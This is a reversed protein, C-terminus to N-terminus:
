FHWGLEVFMRQNNRITDWIQDYTLVAYLQRSLRCNVSGGLTRTLQNGQQGKITYAYHDYHASVAIMQAVWRDLDIVIDSGQTYLGTITSYQGGLNFESGLVDSVRLQTMLTRASSTTGSAVRWNGQAGVMINFPLRVQFSTRWGEKLTKDLLTDSLAKMSEFLYITRAADFGGNLTLWDTPMYTLTAFTNTMRFTKQIIGNEIKKFDFESSSYFFLETGMRVSSQAYLFARDLKGKYRQQGYALTIDSTRFASTGGWGYNAFASFKTQDLDIASTSYDAQAGGLAGFTFNGRRVVVQGGDFGGLGGVYRSTVRGVSWAFTSGVNDQSISLEYLRTRFRSGTGYQAFRASADAYTRGYFSFTLGSGFLRQVDLRLIASPQSFDLPQGSQGAAGYQLAFRGSVDNSEPRGPNRASLRGQPESAKAEQIDVDKEVVASDGISLPATGRVINVVSSSSSVAGVVGVVGGTAGKAVVATDGAAIQRTRGADMYFAGSSVYTIKGVVRIHQRVQAQVSVVAALGAAAILLNVRV